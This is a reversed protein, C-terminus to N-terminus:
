MVGADFESLELVAFGSAHEKAWRKAVAAVTSVHASGRAAGPGICVAGASLRVFGYFTPRALRDEGHIGGAIREMPAYFRTVLENFTGIAREVRERWDDSQFLVLFDDGGVHGLFDRTPECVSALTNGTAKLVEDGQWYGYRDNFPKFHDLDFYCAVFAAGNAILRDIHSNLPVNGPLFTLPNAYRAAEVRVETVARVM